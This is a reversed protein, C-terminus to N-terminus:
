SNDKEKKELYRKRRSLTKLNVHLKEATKELTGYAEYYDRIYQLEMKELIDKLDIEELSTNDKIFKSEHEWIQAMSITNEDSLIVMKEIMNKLERVNGPWKYEELMKYSYASLTKNTKFKDNFQKLYYNALPVIDKKRERLPPIDLRVVNLRYYLDRRFENAEVMQLLDRNTAAIVRVDVKKPKSSGIRLVENEQLVRLLRMQVGLPMESIEDLFLTGGGAVEFYGRKGKALAGTFAGGEYGFLESEILDKAIAGCNLSLLLNDKRMSNQHIFNALKEKGTGTEGQILVTTDKDAVKTAMYLVEYMKPDNVLFDSQDINQHILAKIKEKYETVQERQSTLEKRLEEIMKFDRNNSVVMIIKGDKDFVPTSTIYAKRMTRLYTQEITVTKRTELVILSASYTILKSELERMNKGLIEEKKIGSMIEYSKNVMIVNGEGDTIFFGDLSDEFITDLAKYLERTRKLEEKLADVGQEALADIDLDDNYQSFDPYVGM